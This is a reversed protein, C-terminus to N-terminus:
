RRPASGAMWWSPLATSMSSCSPPMPPRILFDVGASQSQVLKLQKAAALVEKDPRGYLVDADAIERVLDDHSSVRVVDLNPIGNLLGFYADGEETAIVLKM